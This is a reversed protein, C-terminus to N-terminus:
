PHRRYAAIGEILAADQRLAEALVAAPFAAEADGAALAQAIAAAVENSNPWGHKWNRSAARSVSSRLM